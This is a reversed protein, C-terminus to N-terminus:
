YARAGQEGHPLLLQAGWPPSSPPGSLSNSFLFSTPGPLRRAVGQSSGQLVVGPAWLGGAWCPERACFQCPAVHRPYTHAHSGCSPLPCTALSARASLHQPLWGSAAQTSAARASELDSPVYHSGCGAARWSPPSSSATSSFPPCGAWCAASLGCGRGGRRLSGERSFAQAKGLHPGAWRKAAPSKTGSEATWPTSEPERDASKAKYFWCQERGQAARAQGLTSGEVETWLPVWRGAGRAQEEQTLHGGTHSLTLGSPQTPKPGPALPCPDKM